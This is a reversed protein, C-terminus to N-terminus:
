ITNPVSIVLFPEIFLKAYWLKIYTWLIENLEEYVATCMNVCDVHSWKDRKNCAVVERNGHSLKYGYM